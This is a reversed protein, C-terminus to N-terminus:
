GWRGKQDKAMGKAKMERTSLCQREGVSGTRHKDFTTPSSFYLGCTPCQCERTGFLLHERKVPTAQEASRSKALLAHVRSHCQACLWVVELPKDYDAHHGQITEDHAGCHACYEARILTGDRLAKNYVVYAAKQEPTPKLTTATM